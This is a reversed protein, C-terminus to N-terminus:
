KVLKVGGPLEDSVCRFGLNSATTDASNQSRAACRYRYCYSKHCMYSGGKKVKDRGSHPGKPNEQYHVSHRITWWDQTWEWVNGLMNHLGYSNAPYATVPATGAYGDQGLDRTPFTGQWTNAMYQGDKKLKNGWSYKKNQLGARCAYEWEAETPLRKGVWKCFQVADNWSIHIAPHDM